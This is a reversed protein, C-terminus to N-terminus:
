VPNLLCFRIEPTSILALYMKQEASSHARIEQLVPMLNGRVTESVRQHGLQDLQERDSHSTSMSGGDVKLTQAANRLLIWIQM